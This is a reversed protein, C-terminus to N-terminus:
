RGGAVDILAGTTYSAAERACLYAGYVNVEFVQKLRESSMDALPLSPAIIGANVVVGSLPGLNAQAQDFLAIVDQERTVDARLASARGGAAAVADVTSQAAAGDSVYNVAVSWGQAACLIATARGIGRGAGTILVSQASTVLRSGTM